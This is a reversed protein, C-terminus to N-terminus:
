SLETVTIVGANSASIGSVVGTWGTPLEYYDGPQMAVTFVSTTAVTGLKIFMTTGSNNYIQGGDRATNLAMVSIATISSLVAYVSSTTTSLPTSVAAVSGGVFVTGVVSVTNAGAFAVSQIGGAITIPPLAGFISAGVIVSSPVTSVLSTVWTGVQTNGVTGSVSQNAPFNLVQVSSNGVSIVSANSSQLWAVISGSVNQTTPLNSVSVAGSVSQNAVGGGQISGTIIWPNTGQFSIVSGSVNQTTPFNSISVAGSVSQNPTSSTLISGGVIFVPAHGVVSAGVTGSVSQNAPPTFSAAISGGIIFAGVSGQTVTILSGINLVPLSGSLPPQITIPETITNSVKALVQLVSPNSQFAVVSGSSPIYAM